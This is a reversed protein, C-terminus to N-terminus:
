WWDGSNTMAKSSDRFSYYYLTLLVVNVVILENM